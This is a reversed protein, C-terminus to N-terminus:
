IATEIFRTKIKRLKTAVSADLQKDGVRLVFGGILEPNHSHTLEVETKFLAVITQKLKSKLTEDLETVTTVHAQKIGSFEHFRAIFNRCIAPLYSERRNDIVMKLFQLTLPNAKDHLLDAFAKHKGSISIVPCELIFQVAEDTFLTSVLSIDTKLEKLLNKERALEFLAKGYRVGIKSQDM